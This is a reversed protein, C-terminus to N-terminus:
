QWRRRRYRLERIQQLQISEISNRRNGIAGSESENEEDIGSNKM